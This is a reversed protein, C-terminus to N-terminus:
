YRRAMKNYAIAREAAAAAEGADIHTALAPTPEPKAPVKLTMQDLGNIINYGSRTDGNRQLNRSRVAARYRINDDHYRLEEGHIGNSYTLTVADYPVSSKNKRSKEGAERQQAWYTDEQFKNREITNWRDEERQAREVRRTALQQNHHDLKARRRLYEEGSVDTHFRDANSLYGASDPEPVTLGMSTKPANARYMKGQPGTRKMLRDKELAVKDKLARREDRTLPKINRFGHKSNPLEERGELDCSLFEVCEAM